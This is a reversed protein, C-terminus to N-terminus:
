VGEQLRMRARAGRGEKWEAEVRVAWQALGSLRVGNRALPPLWDLLPVSFGKKPRLLIEAPLIERMAERLIRKDWRWAPPLAAVHEVLEHDLLPVRVELSNAMSARDVKTLIDDPLYTKLDLYQMRSVPDLDERWYRRFHWWDDYHRFERALDPFLRDRQYPKIKTLLGAYQELPPLGILDVQTRGILGPVKPLHSLRELIGFAARRVAIDRFSLPVRDYKRLDLWVKHWNYGAFVEDGGDGSLVVKVHERALASVHYTPIASADAFPEDYMRCVLALAEELGDRSVTREFHRSGFREAVLRAYPIESHPAVDFDISFTHIPQGHSERAFAAVSSSDIGGSLLLGVPVDSVMHSQVTERLKERLAESQLKSNSIQSKPNGWECVDWYEAVSPGQGDFTLVHGAPLKRIRRYVTKPAPIYLYNLYDWLASHDVETDLCPAALIAKIESGFIFRQGDWYYVLPKIGLRDRAAYLTAAREDWLAYAFMGRLRTAVSPGWEEFGHLIVESDAASRFVHGCTELDRRLAPYNYIEGNYVLWLTGDENSMPQNGAPSLDIISLRRFGLGARGNAAVYVGADDPGRHAIAQSMRGLADRDIPVRDAHIIGCFGCM